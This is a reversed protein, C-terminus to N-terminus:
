GFLLRFQHRCYRGFFLPGAWHRGMQRCFLGLSTTQFYVGRWQQRPSNLLATRLVFGGAEVM